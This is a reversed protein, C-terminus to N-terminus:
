KETNGFQEFLRVIKEHFEFYKQPDTAASDLKVPYERDILAFVREVPMYRELSEIIKFDQLAYYLMKLRISPKPGNPDAYVLTLAGSPYAGGADLNMGVDHLRTGSPSLSYNFGRNFYNCLNNRYSLIGLSRLRTLSGAIFMDVLTTHRDPEFRCTRLLSNESSFHKLQDIPIIPSGYKKDAYVKLNATTDLVRYFELVNLSLDRCQIFDDTVEPDMRDSLLFSVQNTLCSEKIHRHLSRLFKFLFDRYSTSLCDEKASFLLVEERGKQLKIPLVSHRDADPFLPPFVFRKIGAKQVTLIWSDFLDFDFVYGRDSIRVKFLQIPDTIGLSSFMVPYVPVMLDTVGHDSALKAYKELFTWYESSFLPVRHEHCISQSNIYEYVRFQTEPLQYAIGEVSFDTFCEQSDNYIHFRFHYEGPFVLKGSVWIVTPQPGIMITDGNNLETLCDPLLGPQDIVYEGCNEASYHPWLVPVFGVSYYRCFVGDLLDIRYREGRDSDSYLVIQYAFEEGILVPLRDMSPCKFINQPTAKELCSIQKVHVM